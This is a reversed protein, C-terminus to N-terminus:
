GLVLECLFDGVVEVACGEGGEPGGDGEHEGDDDGLREVCRGGVHETAFGGEVTGEEEEDGAGDDKGEGM